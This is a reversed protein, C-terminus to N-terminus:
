LTYVCVAYGREVLNKEILDQIIEWKGGALGCGIRSMHISVKFIYDKFIGAVKQLCAELADYRIPNVRNQSYIGRQAIMNVICVKEGPSDIVPCISITGLEQRMNHFTIKPKLWRKSLSLVFGKGM